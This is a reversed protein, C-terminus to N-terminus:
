WTRWTSNSPFTSYVSSCSRRREADLAALDVVARLDLAAEVVAAVVGVDVREVLVAAVEAELM